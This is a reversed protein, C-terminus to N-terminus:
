FPWSLLLVRLSSALPMDEWQEKKCTIELAIEEQRKALNNSEEAPSDNKEGETPEHDQGNQAEKGEPSPSLSAQCVVAASPSPPSAHLCFSASSRSKRTTIRSDIFTSLIFLIIHYVYRVIRLMQFFCIVVQRGPLLAWFM